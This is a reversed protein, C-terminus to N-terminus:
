DIHLTIERYAPDFVYVSVGGGKTFFLANGDEGVTIVDQTRRTVDRMQKGKHQPGIYMTKEGGEADSMLVACGSDPHEDDGERTWGVVDQHDFYDHQEGYAYRQRVKIMRKLGPVAPVGDDRLGYYDAYFVCPLGDRRLLIIAYALPKFWPEVWSELSQGPQSDHNDVFTVTKLKDVSIMTNNFISGMDYNGGGNAANYFNFHLPVDFLSMRGGTRHMYDLLEGLNYTWYEGVAFADRGMEERIADLWKQFFSFDIHKVADLRYGDVGTTKAYWRGWRILEEVVAPNDMDVDAGMLYDFNGKEKSVEDSWEKGEILFIGSDKNKEDWDIGAFCTHDWIFDSYKGKRGPFTFKTWAEIQEEGSIQQNRNNWDFKAAEVAEKEDAGMRHDMVIDAYVAIGADQLDKIASLYEDRTGYKTRVSGKQDFEGLDYMDYVGYGVDMGGASGKYAPPLWVIDVGSEKLRSAQVSLRQWLLGDPPLNWEFYQMMTQNNM